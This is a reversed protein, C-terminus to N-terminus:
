MLSRTAMISAGSSCTNASRRAEPTVAFGTSEALGSFYRRSVHAPVPVACVAYFPRACYVDARPCWAAPPPMCLHCSALQSACAMACRSCHADTTAFAAASARGARIHISNPGSRTHCPVICDAVRHHPSLSSGVQSRTCRQQHCSRLTSVVFAASLVEVFSWRGLSTGKGYVCPVISRDVDRRAGARLLWDVMYRMSCRQPRGWGGVRNYIAGAGM